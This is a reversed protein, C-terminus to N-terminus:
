VSTDRPSKDRIDEAIHRIRFEFGAEAAKRSFHTSRANEQQGPADWEGLWISAAGERDQVPSSVRLRDGLTAGHCIRRLEYM